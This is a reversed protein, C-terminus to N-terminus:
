KLNESNASSLNYIGAMLQEAVAKIVSAPFDRLLQLCKLIDDQM